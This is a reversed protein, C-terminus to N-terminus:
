RESVPTAWSAYIDLWEHLRTVYNTSVDFWTLAGTVALAGIALAALGLLLGLGANGIGTVHHHRAAAIGGVALFAALLGLAAGPAALVGTAVTLVAAVAVALALTALLSARPRRQRSASRSAPMTTNADKTSATPSLVSM